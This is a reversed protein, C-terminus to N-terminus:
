KRVQSQVWESALYSATAVVAIGLGEWTSVNEWLNAHAIIAAALGYIAAALHAVTVVTKINM